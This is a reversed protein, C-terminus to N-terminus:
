VYVYGSFLKNYCCSSCCYYNIIIHVYRDWLLAMVEIAACSQRETSSLGGVFLM